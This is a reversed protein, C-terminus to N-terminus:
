KVDWNYYKLCHQLISLFVCTGQIAQEVMVPLVGVTTNGNWNNAPVYIGTPNQQANTWPLAASSPQQTEQHGFDQRKEFAAGM